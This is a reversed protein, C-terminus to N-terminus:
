VYVTWSSSFGKGETQQDIIRNSLKTPCDKQQNTRKTSKKQQDNTTIITIIIFIISHGRHYVSLFIIIIIIQSWHILVPRGDVAMIHVTLCQILIIAIITHHYPCTHHCHHKPHNHHFHNSILYNVIALDIKIVLIILIFLIACFNHAQQHHGFIKIIFM